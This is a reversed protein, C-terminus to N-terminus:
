DAVVQGGVLGLRDGGPQGAMGAEVQVERGGSRGPDVLVFAPEGILENPASDM